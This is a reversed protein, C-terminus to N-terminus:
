NLTGALMKYNQPLATKPAKPKMLREFMRAKRGYIADRPEGKGARRLNAQKALSIRHGSEKMQQRVCDLLNTERVSGAQLLQSAMPEWEPAITLVPEGHSDRTWVGPFLVDGAEIHIAAYKMLRALKTGHGPPECIITEPQFALNDILFEVTAHYGSGTEVIIKHIKHPDPERGLTIVMEEMANALMSQSAHISEYEVFVVKPVDIQTGTEPDRVRLLGEACLTAGALNSSKKETGAPDASIWYEASGFFDAWEEPRDDPNTWFAQDYYCLRALRLSSADAPDNQYQMAYAAPGLTIFREKLGHRDKAAEWIPEFDNEPGGCAQSFYALNITGSRAMKLLESAFDEIHWATCIYVFFSSKGRLRAMWTQAIARNTEERTGVQEAEKQDSPDDFTLEFFSDGTSRSHVGRPSLNGEEYECVRKGDVALFLKQESRNRKDMTIYPYLAKRRRGVPTDDLFHERVARYRNKAKELVYHIIGAPYEPHLNLYLARDANAFVTKGHGPPVQVLAGSIRYEIRHKRALSIVMCMMILHAPTELIQPSGDESVLNSRMTYLMYRITHTAEWVQRKRRGRIGRPIPDRCLKQMKAVRLLVRAWRKKKAEDLRKLGIEQSMLLRQRLENLQTETAAFIDDTAKIDNLDLTEPSFVSLDIGHEHAMQHVIKVQEAYKPWQHGYYNFWKENFGITIDRLEVLYLPNFDGNIEQPQSPRKMVPQPAGKVYPPKVSCLRAWIEAIRADDEPMQEILNKIDKKTATM